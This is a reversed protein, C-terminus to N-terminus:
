VLLQLNFLVMKVLYNLMGNLMSLYNQILNLINLLINRGIDTTHMLPENVTVNKLLNMVTPTYTGVIV